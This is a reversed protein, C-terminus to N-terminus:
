ISLRHQVIGSDSPENGQKWFQQLRKLEEKEARNLSTKTVDTGHKCVLGLYDLSRSWDYDTGNLILMAQRHTIRNREALEKGVVSRVEHPVERHKAPLKSFLHRLRRVSSYHRYDHFALHIWEADEFNCIDYWPQQLQHIRINVHYALSVAQL